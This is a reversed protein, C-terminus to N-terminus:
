FENISQLRRAILERVIAEPIVKDKTFQVTGKSIKFGKLEEKYDQVVGGPFLSMHDKFAGFHILSKGKYKFTPIGYSMVETVDPAMSVVITKLREYEAKEDPGFDKFYEQVTAM